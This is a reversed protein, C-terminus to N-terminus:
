TKLFYDVLSFDKEIQRQQVSTYEGTTMTGDDIATNIRQIRQQCLMWFNLTRPDPPSGEALSAQMEAEFKPIMSILYALSNNNAMNQPDEVDEITLGEPIKVEEGGDAQEIM